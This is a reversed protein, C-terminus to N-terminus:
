KSFPTFKSPTLHKKRDKIFFREDLEDIGLKKQYHYDLKKYSSQLKNLKLSDENIMGEENLKEIFKRFSDNIELFKPTDQIKFIEKLGNMVEEMMEDELRDEDLPDLFILKKKVNKM